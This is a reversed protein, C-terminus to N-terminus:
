REDRTSGHIPQAPRPGLPDDGRVFVACHPPGLPDDGKVVAAHVRRPNLPTAGRAIM